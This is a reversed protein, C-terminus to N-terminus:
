RSRMRDYIGLAGGIASDALQEIRGKERVLHPAHQEYWKGQDEFYLNPKLGQDYLQFPLESTISARVEAGLEELTHSPLEGGDRKGDSGYTAFVKLIRVKKAEIEGEQIARDLEWGIHRNAIEDVKSEGKAAFPDALKYKESSEEPHDAMYKQKALDWLIWSQSKSFKSPEVKIKGLHVDEFSRRVKDAYKQVTTGHTKILDILTDAYKLGHPSDLTGAIADEREQGVLVDAYSILEVAQDRTPVEGAALLEFAKPNSSVEFGSPVPNM